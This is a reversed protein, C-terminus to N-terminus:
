HGSTSVRGEMTDCVPFKSAIVTGIFRVGLARGSAQPEKLVAIGNASFNYSTGLLLIPYIYRFHNRAKDISSCLPRCNRQCLVPVKYMGQIM